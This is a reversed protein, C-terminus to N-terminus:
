KWEQMQYWLGGGTAIQTIDEGPPINGELLEVGNPTIALDWGVYRAEPELRSVREVMSLIQAFSPIPYGAFRIQSYPHVDYKVCNMGYAVSTLIGKEVDVPCAIGGDHYNDTLAAGNGMRLLVAVIHLGGKRDLVTVVRLTNLSGPALRRLEECNEIIEEVIYAYGDKIREELFSLKTPFDVAKVDMGLIGHGGYDKLPKVIVREYKRIFEKVVEWGCFRTDLWGRRVFEQFRENFAAKDLFLNYVKPTSFIRRLVDNRRLSIYSEREKFSKKWFEFTCYDNFDHGYFLFWYLLDFYVALRSKSPAQRIVFASNGWSKRCYRFVTGFRYLKCKKVVSMLIGM